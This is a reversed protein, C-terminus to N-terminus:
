ENNMCEVLIQNLEAQAIAAKKVLPLATFVPIEQARKQLRYIEVALKQAMEKKTM